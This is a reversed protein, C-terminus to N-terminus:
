AGRHEAVLRAGRANGALLSRAVTLYLDVDAAVTPHPVSQELVMFGHRHLYDWKEDRVRLEARVQRARPAFGPGLGSVPRDVPPALVGDLDM